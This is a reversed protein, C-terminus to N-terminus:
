LFMLTIHKHIENSPPTTQSHNNDISDIFTILMWFIILHYLFVILLSLITISIYPKSNGKGWPMNMESSVVTNLKGTSSLSCLLTYETHTCAYTHKHTDERTRVHVHSHIHTCTCKNIHTHTYTRKNTYEHTHTHKHRQTHMCKCTLAHTHAYTNM